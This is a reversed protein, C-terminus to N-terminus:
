FHAVPVNEVRGSRLRPKFFIKEPEMRTLFTKFAKIERDNHHKEGCLGMYLIKGADPDEPRRNKTTKSLFIDVLIKKVILLLTHIM